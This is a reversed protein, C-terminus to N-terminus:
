GFLSLQQVLTPQAIPREVRRTPKPVRAKGFVLRQTLAAKVEAVEIAVQEDDLLQRLYEAQRRRLEVVGGV